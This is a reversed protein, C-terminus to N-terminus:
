AVLARAACTLDVFAGVEVAAELVGDELAAALAPEAALRTELARMESASLADDHYANVQEWDKDNLESM